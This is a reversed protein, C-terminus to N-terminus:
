ATAAVARAARGADAATLDHHPALRLLPGPLDAPARWPKCATTLVDHEALLRNRVGEVDQGATPRLGVIACAVGPVDAIEWGTLDALATRLLDGRAALEGFPDAATRLDAVARALGIRGAVHADDPELDLLPAGLVDDRVALVGVGRPGRLWKRGPAYVADAGYGVDVHGLAQAADVWLPVGHRRAVAVAEAVPQVLGRHSPVHTLAVLDPPDTALRRDLADVDLLGDGDVELPEPTLGRRRYADLNPGWETPTVAVRGAPPLPWRALLLDRGSTASDTFAVRDAPLGLLAGLGARLGDLVPAAETEAVYAGREVELRLFAVEADM